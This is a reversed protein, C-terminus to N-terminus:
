TVDGVGPISVHLANVTIGAPTADVIQENLKVNIGPLLLEQNPAGSAVIPMGDVVLDAIEASGSATAGSPSCRATAQAQLLSASVSHGGATLTLDAVSVHARSRDGSGVTTAHLVDVTLIGPVSESLLSAQEAGGAAPLPGTDSILIPVGLVQGTVGTARGSFATANASAPAGLSLSVLLAPVGISLAGSSRHM